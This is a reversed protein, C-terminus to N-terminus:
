QSIAHHVGTTELTPEGLRLLEIQTQRRLDEWTGRVRPGVRERAEDDIEQLALSRSLYQRAVESDGADWHARGLNHLVGALSYRYHLANPEADFLSKLLKKSEAFSDIALDAQGSLLRLRGLNNLTTAWQSVFGRDLAMSRSIMRLEREAEEVCRLAEGHQEHLCAAQNSLATALMRVTEAFRLRQDSAKFRTKLAQLEEIIQDNTLTMEAADDRVLPLHSQLMARVLMAQDNDRAIPALIMMAGQLQEYAAANQDSDILLMALNGHTKALDIAATQPDSQEFGSTKQYAISRRYLEHAKAHQDQRARIVALNNLCLGITQKIQDSPQEVTGLLAFCKEYERAADESAGVEDLIQAAKFHAIGAQQAFRPHGNVRTSLKQYYTLASQLLEFRVDQAGDVDRLKEAALLGFRDLIEESNRLDSLSKDLALEVQQNALALKAVVGWSVLTMITMFLLASAALRRHRRVWKSGRLFISPKAALVPQGYAFRQLDERFLEANRYRLKLDQATAKYIVKELETPLEPDVSHISLGPLRMRQADIEAASSGELARRGTLLEFMTLGLSYVDTREDVPEAASQEPSMYALTGVCNGTETLSSFQSGIDRDRLQALGFDTVMIQNSDDVLLNSPKIDRHVVGCEHAHHIADCCDIMWEVAESVTPRSKRLREALSVGDVFRMALFRSAGVGDGGGIRYVPVILPHELKAAAQAEIIFRAYAKTTTDWVGPIIKLAVRRNLQLEIAEYVIGTGGHGLTRILQFGDVRPLDDIETWDSDSIRLLRDIQDAASIFEQQLDPNAVCIEEVLRARDCDPEEEISVTYQELLGQLRIETSGCSSSLSTEVGITLAADHRVKTPHVTM